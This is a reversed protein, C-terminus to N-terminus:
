ENYGELKLWTPNLTLKINDMRLNILTTIERAAITAEEAWDGIYSM